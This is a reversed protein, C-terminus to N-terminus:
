DDFGRPIDPCSYESFRDLFEATANLGPMFVECLCLLVLGVIAIAFQNLCVESGDALALGINSHYIIEILLKRVESDREVLGFSGLAIHVVVESLM